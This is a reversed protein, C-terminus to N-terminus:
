SFHVDDVAEAGITTSSGSLADAGMWHYGRRDTLSEVLQEWRSTTCSLNHVLAQFYKYMDMHWWSYILWHPMEWWIYVAWSWKFRCCAGYIPSFPLRVLSRSTHSVHPFCYSGHLQFKSGLKADWCRWCTLQLLWPPPKAPQHPWVSMPENLM